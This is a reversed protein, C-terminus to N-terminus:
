LSIDSKLLQLKMAEKVTQMKVKTTKSRAVFVIDYGQNPQSLLINEKCLYRFAEKIVRRARNRKVANGIKKSTTVGIRHYGLKNKLYYVVLISNM